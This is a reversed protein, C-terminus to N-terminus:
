GFIRNVQYDRVRRVKFHLRLAPIVLPRTILIVQFPQVLTQRLEPPHQFRGSTKVQETAMAQCRVNFDHHTFAETHQVMNDPRLRGSAPVPAVLFAQPRIEGGCLANQERFMILPRITRFIGPILRLAPCQFLM